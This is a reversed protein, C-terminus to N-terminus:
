RKMKKKDKLNNDKVLKPVFVAGLVGPLFTGIQFFQFSVSYLATSESSLHLNVYKVSFYLSLM